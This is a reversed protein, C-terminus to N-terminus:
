SSAAREKQVSRRDLCAPIDGLDDGENEPIPDDVPVESRGDAQARRHLEKKILRTALKDWTRSVAKCAQILEDDIELDDEHKRLLAAAEQASKAAGRAFQLAIHPEPEDDDPELIASGDDNIKAVRYGPHDRELRETFQADTELKPEKTLSGDANLWRGRAETEPEPEPEASDSEKVVKQLALAHIAKRMSLHAVGNRKKDPCTAVKMYNQAQRVGIKVNAKLWKLWGGHPFQAKAEILLLGAKVAHDFSQGVYMLALEHNENIDSALESLAPVKAVATSM